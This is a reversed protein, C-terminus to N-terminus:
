KQTMNSQIFFNVVYMTIEVMIKAFWPAIHIVDTLFWIISCNIALIAVALVAYRGLTYFKGAGKFVMYKNLLFNFIGSIIRAAVTATVVSIGVKYFALNFLTYDVLFSMFSALAFVPFRRFLLRYIRMGDKIPRFHSTSNGPAYVTEIGIEVIKDFAKPSQILMETEYEYRNGEMELLQRARDATLRFGRLGTQTDTIKVGKLARFMFCTLNNGVKSRLPMEAKNRTGLILSDPNSKINEGINFIDKPTHQGDADATVIDTYGNEWRWKIGYKLAHGKGHNEDYGLVDAGLQAVQRFRGSFEEGSGDNVVVVSLNKNLLEQVLPM